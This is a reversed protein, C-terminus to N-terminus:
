EKGKRRQYELVIGALIILIIFAAPIAANGTDSTKQHHASGTEESIDKEQAESRVIVPIEEVAILAFASLGSPSVARFTMVDTDADEIQEPLLIEGTGDDRIHAIRISEAGGHEMVWYGPISLSITATRIDRGNQLNEARAHMLYAMGTILHREGDALSRLLQVNELTIEDDLRIAIGADDPFIALDLDLSGSVNGIGPYEAEAPAFSVRIGTVDARYIGDKEEGGRIHFTLTYKSLDLHVADSLITVEGGGAAAEDRDIAITLGDDGRILETGDPLLLPIREGSIEKAGGEEQRLEQSPGAQSGGPQHPSGQVAIRLAIVDSSSEPTSSMSESWYFIVEDGEGVTHVNSGVAPSVGNVQYMWGEAGRNARGKISNIFLSGYEHFYSDDITYANGSAHLAGFATLTDVEYTKGSNDATATFTGPRLVITRWPLGEGGSGGSGGGGSAITIPAFISFPSAYGTITQNGSDIVQDDLAFWNSGDYRHISTRFGTAFLSAWEEDTFPGFTLGIAPDFHTGAPGLIYIHDALRLTSGAPPVPIEPAIGVSLDAVVTGNRMPSTNGAIHLSIESYRINIEETTRGTSSNVSQNIDYTRPPSVVTITDHAVSDPGFPNSVTLSVHYVQLGESSSIYTNEPHQQTSTNGDGFDWFWTLPDSGTSTDYFQVALPSEGRSRETTFSATAREGEPPEGADGFAHLIGEDTGIILIGDAYSPSSMIYNSTPYRWVEKGDTTVAYITGGATNSAFYVTGDAIVPTTDVKGDVQFSWIHDGTAADLRHLSHDANTGLYISGEHIAPSGWAGSVPIRWQVEGSGIESAYLYDLTTLYVTDGSIVPSSRIQSDLATTWIEDGSIADVAILLHDDRHGAFVIMGDAYAPSTYAFTRGGTEYRWLTEGETSIAHLTGNSLSTVYVRDNWVAPTSALGHWNGNSRGIDVGRSWRTSGDMRDIAYLRGDMCGIFVLDDTVAAGSVTGEGIGLPNRWIEEGTEADLSFLHYEEGPTFVMDPWVGIYIRGDAVAPSAGIFEGLEKQWLIPANLQNEKSSIIDGSDGDDPIYASTLPATLIMLSCIIAISIGIRKLTKRVGGEEFSTGDRM